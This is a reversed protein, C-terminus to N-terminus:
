FGTMDDGCPGGECDFPEHPPTFALTLQYDQCRESDFANCPNPSGFCAFNGCNSSYCYFQLKTRPCASNGWNTVVPSGDIDFEGGTRTIFGTDILPRPSHAANCIHKRTEYTRVQITWKVDCRFPGTFVNDFCEAGIGTIPPAEGGPTKNYCTTDSPPHSQGIIYEAVAERTCVVAGAELALATMAQGAAVYLPRAEDREAIAEDVEVQKADIEVQKDEIEQEKAEVAAEAAPCGTPPDASCAEDKIQELTELQEELTELEDELEDLNAQQYCAQKFNESFRLKETNYTTKEGVWETKLASCEAQTAATAGCDTCDFETVCITEIFIKILGSQANSCPQLCDEDDCDCWANELQAEIDTIIETKWLDPIPQFEFCEGPMENMKDHVDQIDQKSWRHCEPPIEIPEIPDCGDDPDELVENVKVLLEGWSNSGVRRFPENSNAM